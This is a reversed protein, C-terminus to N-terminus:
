YKKLERDLIRNIEKIQATNQNIVDDHIKIEQQTNLFSETIRNVNKQFIELSKEFSNINNQTLKKIDNINKILGAIFAIWGGVTIIITNIDM